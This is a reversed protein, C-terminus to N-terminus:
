LKESLVRGIDFKDVNPRLHKPLNNQNRLNNLKEKTKEEKEKLEAAAFYDQM